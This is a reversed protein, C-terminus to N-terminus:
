RGNNVSSRITQFRSYCSAAQIFSIPSCMNLIGRSYYMESLEVTNLNNTSSTELLYGLSGNINGVVICGLESNLMDLREKDGATRLKVILRDSPIQAVKNSSGYYSNVVTKVMSENQPILQILQDIEAESKKVSFEILYTRSTLQRIADASGFYPSLIRNAETDSIENRMVVAMMDQRQKMEVFLGSEDRFRDALIEQQIMVLLALVLLIKKM